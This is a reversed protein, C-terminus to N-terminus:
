AGAYAFGYVLSGREKNQEGPQHKVIEFSIPSKAM